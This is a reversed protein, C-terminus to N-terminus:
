PTQKVEINALSWAFPGGVGGQVWGSFSLQNPTLSADGTQFLMEASESSTNGNNISVSFSRAAPNVTIKVSYVVEMMFTVGLPIFKKAGGESGMAIWGNQQGSIRQTTLTWLTAATKGGDSETAAAGSITLRFNADAESSYQGAQIDFSVTHPKSADVPSAELIRSLTLPNKGALRSIQLVHPTNPFAPNAGVKVSFDEKLPPKAKWGDLWGDGPGGPFQDAATQGEGEAFRAVVEGASCTASLLLSCAMSTLLSVGKRSRSM